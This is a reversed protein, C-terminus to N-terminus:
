TYKEEAWIKRGRLLWAWIKNTLFSAMTQTIVFKTEVNIISWQGADNIHSIDFGVPYKGNFLAFELIGDSINLKNIEYIELKQNVSLGNCSKYFMKVQEPLKKGIAEQVEDIKADSIGCEIHYETELKRLNIEIDHLNM